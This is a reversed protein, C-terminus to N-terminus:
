QQETREAGPNAPARTLGNKAALRLTTGSRWPIEEHDVLLVRPILQVEHGFFNFVVSGPLFTTDLYIVKGFPVNTVPQDFLVTNTQHSLIVPQEPFILSVNSLGFQPQAITVKASGTGDSGFTVQWGGKRTRLHEISFYTLIYLLMAAGFAIALLKILGDSKM